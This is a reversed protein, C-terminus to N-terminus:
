DTKIHISKMGMIRDMNNINVFANCKKRMNFIPLSIVGQLKQILRYSSSM